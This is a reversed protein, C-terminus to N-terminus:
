AAPSPEDQRIYDPIRFQLVRECYERWEPTVRDFIIGEDVYIGSTVVLDEQLFVVDTDPADPTVGDGDTWGSFARLRDIPYAKCYRGVSAM